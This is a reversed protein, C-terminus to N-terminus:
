FKVHPVLDFHPLGMGTAAIDSTVLTPASIPMFHWPHPCKTMTGLTFNSRITLLITVEAWDYFGYIIFYDIYVNYLM